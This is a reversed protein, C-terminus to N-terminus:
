AVAMRRYVALRTRFFEKLEAEFGSRDAPQADQPDGVKALRGGTRKILEDVEAAAKKADRVGDAHASLGIIDVVSAILGNGVTPAALCGAFDGMRGRAFLAKNFRQAPAPDNQSFPNVPALQHSGVLLTVTHRLSGAPAQSMAPLAGIEQLHRPAEACAEIVPRHAVDQGTAVGIATRFKLSVQEVPVTLILPRENLAAEWEPGGMREAGRIFIDRRFTKDSAYDLLTERWVPDREAHIQPALAAPASMEIINDALTASAVYNLRAAEMDAVVDSHYFAQWSDHLYEHVLYRADQKQNQKIHKEVLPNKSFYSAGGEQLTLAARLAETVADISRGPHRATFEQLFKQIPAIASWGPLSNYSVYLLGGPKLLRDALQVIVRRNGANVWSYIGHLVIFDFQPVEGASAVGLLQEFSLDAFEVNELAAEAALRRANAIHGPMFDVGMFRMAPNAAALLNLGFGQGCGLELYRAGPGISPPRFGQMVCVFALYSPALERYFGTTYPVDTVYGDSWTSM